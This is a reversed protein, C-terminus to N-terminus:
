VYSPRTWAGNGHWQATAKNIEGGEIDAATQIEGIVAPGNFAQAPSNAYDPYLTLTVFQGKFFPCVGNRTLLTLSGGVDDNGVVRQTHGGTSSSNYAKMDVSDTFSWGTLDVLNGAGADAQGNKGSYASM